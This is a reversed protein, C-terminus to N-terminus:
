TKNLHIIGATNLGKHWNRNTWYPGSLSLTGDPNRNFELTAAGLHDSADTIVPEDTSAEFIYELRFQGNKDKTPIAWKETSRTYGSESGYNIKITLLRSTIKVKCPVSQLKTKGLKKKGKASANVRSWNSRNEGVWLGTLSPIRFLPCIKDFIVTQGLAIISLSLVFSISSVGKAWDMLTMPNALVSYFLGALLCVLLLSILITRIKFLRIM